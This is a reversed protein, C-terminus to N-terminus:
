GGRRGGMGATWMGRGGLWTGAARRPATAQNGGGGGRGGMMESARDSMAVSPEGGLESRRRRRGEGPWAAVM